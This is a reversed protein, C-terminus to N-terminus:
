QGQVIGRGRVLPMASVHPSPQVQGSKGLAQEVPKWDAESQQQAKADHTAPSSIAIGVTAISTLGAILLLHKLSQMDM